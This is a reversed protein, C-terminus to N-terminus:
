HYPKKEEAISIRASIRAVSGTRDIRPRDRRRRGTGGSSGGPSACAGASQRFMAFGDKGAVAVGTLATPCLILAGNMVAAGAAVGGGPQDGKTRSAM